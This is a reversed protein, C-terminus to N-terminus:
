DIQGQLAERMEAEIRMEDLTEEERDLIEDAIEGTERQIEWIEELEETTYRLLNSFIGSIETPRGLHVTDGKDKLNEICCNLPDTSESITIIVKICRPEGNPYNARYIEIDKGM